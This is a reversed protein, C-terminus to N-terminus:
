RQLMGYSPGVQTSFAPILKRYPLRQIWPTSVCVCVNPKKSANGKRWEKMLKLRAVLAVPVSLNQNSLFSLTMCGGGIEPLDCRGGYAALEDALIRGYPQFWHGGQYFGAILSWSQLLVLGDLVLSIQYSKFLTSLRPPITHTGNSRNRHSFYQCSNTECTDFDLWSQM